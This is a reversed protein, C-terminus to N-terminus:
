WRGVGARLVRSFYAMPLSRSKLGEWGGSTGERGITMGALIGM